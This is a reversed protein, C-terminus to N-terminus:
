RKVSWLIGLHLVLGVVIAGIIIVLAYILFGKKTM